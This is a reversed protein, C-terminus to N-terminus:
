PRSAGGPRGLEGLIKEVAAWAEVEERGLRVAEKEAAAAERGRKVAMEVLLPLRAIKTEVAADQALQAEDVAGGGAEAEFKAEAQKSVPQRKKGRVIGHKELLANVTAKDSEMRIHMQRAELALASARDIDETKFSALYLGGVSVYVGAGDTARYVCPPLGNTKNGEVKVAQM